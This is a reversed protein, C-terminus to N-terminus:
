FQAVYAAYFGLVWVADTLYFRFSCVANAVYAANAGYAACAVHAAYVHFVFQMLGCHLKTCNKCKQLRKAALFWM